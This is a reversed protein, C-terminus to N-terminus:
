KFGNSLNDTPSTYMFSAVVLGVILFALLAISHYRYLFDITLAVPDHEEAQNNDKKKKHENRVPAHNYDIDSNKIVVSAKRTSKRNSSM